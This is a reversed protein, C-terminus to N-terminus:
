TERNADTWIIIPGAGAVLATIAAWGAGWWPEVATQVLLVLAIAVSIAAALTLYRLWSM